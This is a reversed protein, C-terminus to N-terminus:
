EAFVRHARQDAARDGVVGDHHEAVTELVVDQGVLQVDQVDGEQHRVQAALEAAAGAVNSVIELQEAAIRQDHRGHPVIVQRVVLAHLLEGVM